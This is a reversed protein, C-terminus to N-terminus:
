TLRMKRSRLKLAWAPMTLWDDKAGTPAAYCVRLLTCSCMDEFQPDPLRALCPIERLASWVRQALEKGAMRERQLAIILQEMTRLADPPVPCFTSVLGNADRFNWGDTLVHGCAYAMAVWPAGLEQARAQAVLRSEFLAILPHQPNENLRIWRVASPAATPRSKIFKGLWSM